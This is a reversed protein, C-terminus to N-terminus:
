WIYVARLGGFPCFIGNKDRTVKVNSKQIQGEFEDSGPVL